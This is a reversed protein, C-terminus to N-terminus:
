RDEPALGVLGIWEGVDVDLGVRAGAKGNGNGVDM